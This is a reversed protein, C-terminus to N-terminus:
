HAEVFETKTTQHTISTSVIAGPDLPFSVSFIRAITVDRLGALRRASTIVNLRALHTM